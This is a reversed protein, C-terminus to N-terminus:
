IINTTMSAACGTIDGSFPGDTWESLDIGFIAILYIVHYPPLLDNVLPDSTGLVTYDVYNGDFALFATFASLTCGIYAYDATATINMGDFSM